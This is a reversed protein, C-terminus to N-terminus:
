HSSVYVDRSEQDKWHGDKTHTIFWLEMNNPEDGTEPDRQCALFM